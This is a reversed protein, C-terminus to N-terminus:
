KRPICSMFAKLSVPVSNLVPRVVDWAYDKSNYPYHKVPIRQEQAKQVLPDQELMRGHQDPRSNTLGLVRGCKLGENALIVHGRNPIFPNRIDELYVIGLVHSENSFRFPDKLFNYVLGCIYTDSKNADNYGPCEVFTLTSAGDETPVEFVDVYPDAQVLGNNILAPCAPSDEGALDNIFHSKGVGTEGLLIVITHKDAYRYRKRRNLIRSLFRFTEKAASKRQIQLPASYRNSKDADFRDLIASLIGRVCASDETFRYMSAGAKLLSKWHRNVLEDERLAGVDAPCNKWRSTTLFVRFLSDEGFLEKLLEINSREHHNMKGPYIPFVYIIGAVKMKAQYSASLWTAVKRLMETDDEYTNQFGPTDLLVLRRGKLIPHLNSNVIAYYNLQTTCPDIKDSVPAISKGLLLNIFM